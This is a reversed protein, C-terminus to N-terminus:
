GTSCGRRRRTGTCCCYGPADKPGAERYFIRVGDVSVTHYTLSVSTSPSVAESSGATLSIAVAAAALVSKASM